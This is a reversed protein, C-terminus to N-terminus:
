RLLLSGRALQAADIVPTWSTKATIARAERSRPLLVMAVTTALDPLSLGRGLLRVAWATQCLLGAICACGWFLAFRECRGNKEEM